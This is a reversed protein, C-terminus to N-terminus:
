LMSKTEEFTTEKDANSYNYVAWDIIGGIKKETEILGNFATPIRNDIATPINNEQDTM